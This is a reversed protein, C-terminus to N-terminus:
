NITPSKHKQKEIRSPDVLYWFAPLSYFFGALPLKTIISTHTIPKQSKAQSIQIRMDYSKNPFLMKYLSKKYEFIFELNKTLSLATENM